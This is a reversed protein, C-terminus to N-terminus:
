FLDDEMLELDDETLDDLLDDVAVADLAKDMSAQITETPKETPTDNSVPVEEGIMDVQIDAVEEVELLAVIDETRFDEIHNYIYTDISGDALLGEMADLNTSSEVPKLVYISGIILLLCTSFGIAYHPRFFAKIRSLFSVGTGNESHREPSLAAEEEIRHMLRDEFKDFYNAPMSFDEKKDKKLNSLFPSLEELEKNIKNNKM